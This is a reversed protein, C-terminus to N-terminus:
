VQFFFEADKEDRNTVRPLFYKSPPHASVLWVTYLRQGVVDYMVSM